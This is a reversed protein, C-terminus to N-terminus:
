YQQVWTTANRKFAMVNRWYVDPTPQNWTAAFGWTGVPYQTIDGYLTNLWQIATTANSQDGVSVYRVRNSNYTSFLSEWSVWTGAGTYAYEAPRASPDVGSTGLRHWPYMGAVQSTPINLRISESTFDTNYGGFLMADIVVDTLLYKRDFEVNVQPKTYSGVQDATVQHPRSYNTMHAALGSLPGQNQILYMGGIPLYKSNNLPDICEAATAFGMNTLNDLKLMGLTTGHPNQYNTVHANVRASYGAITAAAAAVKGAGYDNIDASLGSSGYRWANTIRDIETVMSEMGIMQWYKHPHKEPAFETPKGIISEWTVVEDSTSLSDLLLKLEKPSISFTGGLAQYQVKIPSRVAPNTVVILAMIEKATLTSMDSFYYRTTYDTGPILARTTADRIVLGKTYFAGHDLACVRNTKGAVNILTHSEDMRRNSLARGTTDLPLFTIAM